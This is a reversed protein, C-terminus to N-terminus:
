GRGTASLLILPCTSIAIQIPKFPITMHALRKSSATALVLVTVIM